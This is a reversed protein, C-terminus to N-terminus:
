YELLDSLDATGNAYLTRINKAEAQKKLFYYCIPGINFADNRYVSVTELLLADFKRELRDLDPHEFHKKLLRTIKEGYYAQFAKAFAEGELPYAIAFESVPILGGKIVMQAFSPYDWKLMKSRILSIVNAFDVFGKYYVPLSGGPCFRVTDFLYEFVEADIRASLLRPNDIGKVANAVAKLLPAYEQSVKSGDNELVFAQMSAVDIAGLDSLVDPRNVGFL